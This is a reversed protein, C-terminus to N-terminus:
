EAEENNQVMLRDNVSDAGGANEAIRLALEKEQDSAVEGSLTVAGDSSDVNIDLGSTNSNVLLQSKIRATLTTNLVSQKFGEREKSRKSNKATAAKAKDVVLGNRVSTIGDISKAIEGALERDIDSGVPGILYATGNRVDSDIAFSGLRENFLLTAELKGHLRADKLEVQTEHSRQEMNADKDGAMANAALAAVGILAATLIVAGLIGPIRTKSIMANEQQNLPKSVREVVATRAAPM